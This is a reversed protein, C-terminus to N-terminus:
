GITKMINILPLLVSLIIIGVMFATIIVMAPEIRAVSAALSQEAEDSMRSAIQEIVSDASGTRLGVSLMRCSAASMLGNDRLASVIDTNEDIQKLCNRCRLAAAPCDEFMDAALGIGEEIPLGSALAIYLVQAFMANNTKRMPGKDGFVRLFRRKVATAAGPILFLIAAAATLVAAIIGLFPLAANLINGVSLLGGALGSLSGGFSAYVDNFVPLVKSLLIVIVILMVALLISPYILANRLSQAMRDRSEYYHALSNLTEETRGVQEAIRIMGVIHSSFCGASSLADAFSIGNEMQQSMENLIEIYAADTEEEAIMALSSDLNMGSHLFLALRTFLDAYALYSLEITKM